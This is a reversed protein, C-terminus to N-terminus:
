LVLNLPMKSLRHDTHRAVLLFKNSRGHWLIGFFANKGRVSVTKQDALFQQLSQKEVKGRYNKCICCYHQKYQKATEVEM